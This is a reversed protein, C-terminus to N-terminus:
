ATPEEERIDILQVTKLPTKQTILPESVSCIGLFRGATSYVNFEQGPCMEVSIEGFDEMRVLGGNVFQKVSSTKLTASPLDRTIRDTELLWVPRGSGERHLNELKVSEEVHISGVRTRRLAQLTGATGLGQAIDAGLTRVYTGESCTVDFVIVPLDCSVLNLAHIEIDRPSREVEIHARALTYLRVGGVKRASFMPPVQRIIGTFQRFISEIRNRDISGPISVKKQITGTIDQTDTEIGLCLEARYEKTGSRLRSVLKTARGVCVPLLGTAFPDLTGAHGAKIRGSLASQVRNVCQRSTLGEPKDLLVLGHIERVPATM